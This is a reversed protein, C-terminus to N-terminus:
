FLKIVESLSETKGVIKWFNPYEDNFKSSRERYAM